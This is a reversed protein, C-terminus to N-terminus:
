LWKGEKTFEKKIGLLLYDMELHQTGLELQKLCAFQIVNIINAGTLEYRISLEEFSIDAALSVNPPLSKQWLQLRENSSPVEFEIMCNFRRTFAEDINDKLNSALIVLGPHAEIRQLLYSVEQNAYKDHADRVSTRKGFIADAEDFFLIWDKNRAKNFLSSLNKETEGIYKSVVMSLDIRYVDRGTYKGLLSATLTKGTGPAGWFMVRYGPKIKAAMEWDIMLTKHHQVWTQIEMIENLTKQQLVLDSWELDTNILEAPFTASLTPKVEAGTTLLEVYEPDLALVGSLRPEGFPVEGLSLVGTRFPFSSSDFLERKSLKQELDTGAIIFLATEGTPIFGSHTRGKFGGFDAYQGGNEFFEMLIQNFFGPYVHPVLATLLIVVEEDTLSYQVILNNLPFQTGAQVELLPKPIPDPAGTEVQFRHRTLLRLYDFLQNLNAAAETFM